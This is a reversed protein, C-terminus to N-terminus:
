SVWSIAYKKIKWRGNVKNLSFYLGAGCTYGCGRVMSVLAQTRKKNFGVRSFTVLHGTEPYKLRLMKWGDKSPDKYIEYEDYVFFRDIETKTAITIKRPLKFYNEIAAPIKNQLKYNEFVEPKVSRLNGYNFSTPIEGLKDEVQKTSTESIVVLPDNNPNFVKSM